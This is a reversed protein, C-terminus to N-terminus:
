QVVDQGAQDTAEPGGADALRKEARRRLSAIAVAILLLILPISCVWVPGVTARAIGSLPNGGSGTLRFIQVRNNATDAVAFWDRVPDYAISTPYGLKGDQEGYEGYRQTVHGTKTDIAMIAFEFADVLVLRGASDFTMGAPIQFPKVAKNGAAIQAQWQKWDANSPYVWRLKGAQTYSKIRHNETDSLYINGDPGIAIGRIVDFENEENGRVGWDTILKGQTDYLSVKDRGGVAVLNDRVDIEIPLTSGWSRLEKNDPTFVRIKHNAFDAIYILNDRSVAFAQPMMYMPGKHILAKYSGDPNFGVLQFRQPDNVWITGNPAIGVDTPGYLQQNEGKGWGYISRVWKLGKTSGGSEPSGVPTMLKVVFISLTFLMLVLLALIIALATRTRNTRRSKRGAKPAVPGESAPQSTTTEDTV